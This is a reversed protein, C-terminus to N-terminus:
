FYFQERDSEALCIKETTTDERGVWEDGDIM